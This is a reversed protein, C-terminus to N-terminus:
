ALAASEAETELRRGTALKSQLSLLAAIDAPPVPRSFLFGQALECGLKRLEALQQQTEVGEAIVSLRLAHAMAVIAGVIATDDRDQGLRDVFSQDIKLEDIPLRKLQALSSYGTGFDDISIRVGLSRLQRMTEIAAEVDAMVATETVEVCLSGAPLDSQRIVDAVLAPLSADFQISSVNVCMLLESRSDVLPEWLARQRCAERLVWEGLPGILGSEEALPIFHAPLVVGSDPRDWRALAEVGRVQGSALDLKPQYLLRLQGGAIAIGLDHVETIRRDADDRLSQDFFEVRDGGRELGVHLASTADALLSEAEAFGHSDLAVGVTVTVIVDDPLGDPETSREGDQVAGALRAAIAAAAGADPIDECLVFFTEGLRAILADWRGVADYERLVADLHRGVRVLLEDGRDYGQRENVLSLVDTEVGFVALTSRHRAARLLARQLHEVFLPRTPFGTLRDHLREHELRDEAVHQATVDHSHLVIAGIDPDDILNAGVTRLHRWSGNAHAIRFEFTRRGGPEALLGSVQAQVRDLDDPHLLDLMQDDPIALDRGLLRQGASNTYRRAGGADLITVLYPVDDVSYALSETGPIRVQPARGRGSGRV